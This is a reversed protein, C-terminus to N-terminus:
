CIPCLRLSHGCAVCTVMHGCPICALQKEETLCLACPNSSTSNTSQSRNAITTKETKCEDNNSISKISSQSSITMEIDTGNEVISLVAHSVTPMSKNMQIENQERIQKMKISPIIINEKKDGIYEIQKRLILCAVYLDNDSVFDDCKIQLQDECCRKIISLQFNQDLLRQSIPLDLRAAALRSLTNEDSMLLTGSNTTVNTQIVGNSGTRETSKAQEKQIRKFEQIKRFLDEGCLQKAYPCYPFWHAHEIIPSDNSGWNQLSGNCYFCTVITAQTFAVNPQQMAFSRKVDILKALKLSFKMIIITLVLRAICALAIIFIGISVGLTLDQSRNDNSFNGTASAAIGVFLLMVIVIAMM